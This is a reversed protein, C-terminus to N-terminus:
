VARPLYGVLQDLLASGGIGIVVLSLMSGMAALVVGPLLWYQAITPAFKMLGFSVAGCLVAAVGSLTIALAIDTPMTGSESQSDPISRLALVAVLLSAAGFVNALVAAHSQSLQVSSHHTVFQALYYAGATVLAAAVLVSVVVAIQKLSKSMTIRWFTVKRTYRSPSSFVSM